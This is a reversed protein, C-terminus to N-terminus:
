APNRMVEAPDTASAHAAPWLAACPGVLAVVLFGLLLELSHVELFLREGGFAYAMARSAAPIGVQGLVVCLLGGALAGAASSLASVLTVEVWLTGVISWRPTGLARMLGIERARELMLILLMNGVGIAVVLLVFLFGSGILYRGIRVMGLLDGAMEEWTWVELPLEARHLAQRLRERVAPLDAEERLRVVLSGPIGEDGLLM